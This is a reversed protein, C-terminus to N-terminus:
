FTGGYTVKEMVEELKSVIRKTMENGVDKNIPYLCNISKGNPLVKSPYVLRYSYLSSPSTYIAINNLHFQNNIVCSAFAVLGNQPKVPIIQIESISISAKMKMVEKQHFYLM